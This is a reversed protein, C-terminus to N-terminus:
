DPPPASFGAVDARTLVIGTTPGDPDLGGVDM